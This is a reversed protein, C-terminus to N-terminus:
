SAVWAPFPAPTTAIMKISRARRHSWLVLLAIGATLLSAVDHLEGALSRLTVFRSSNNAAYVMPVLAAAGGLVILLVFGHFVRSRALFRLHVGTHIRVAEFM